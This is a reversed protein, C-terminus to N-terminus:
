AKQYEHVGVLKYVDEWNKGCDHCGVYQTTVGSDTNREGGEINDSGCYLCRNGSSAMYDSIKRQSIM